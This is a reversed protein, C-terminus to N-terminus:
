FAERLGADRKSECDIGKNIPKQPSVKKGSSIFAAKVM